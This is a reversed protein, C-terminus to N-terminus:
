DDPGPILLSHRGGPQVRHFHGGHFLVVAQVVQYDRAQIAEVSLLGTGPSAFVTETVASVTLLFGLVLQFYALPVIAVDLLCHKWGRLVKIRALKVYENDLM